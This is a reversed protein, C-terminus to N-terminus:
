TAPKKINYAAKQLPFACIIQCKKCFRLNLFSCFHSSASLYNIKIQKQDNDCKEFKTPKLTPLECNISWITNNNYYAFHILFKIKWRVTASFYFVNNLSLRRVKWAICKKYWWRPTISPWCQCIAKAKQKNESLDGRFVCNLRAARKGSVNDVMKSPCVM